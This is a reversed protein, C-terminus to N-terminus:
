QKPDDTPGADRPTRRPRRSKSQDQSKSQGQSKGRSRSQGQSKSQHQDRIAEELAIRLGLNLEGTPAWVTLLEAIRDLAIGTRRAVESLARRAQGADLRGLAMVVGTAQEVLVAREAEEWPPRDSYARQESGTGGTSREDHGPSLLRSM